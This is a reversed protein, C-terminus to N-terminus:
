TPQQEHGDLPRLSTKDLQWRDATSSRMTGLLVAALIASGALSVIRDVATAAIAESATLGVATGIVGSLLERLGLGAPFIGIAAAIIVSATLAVAQVPRITQGIVQFAVFIRVSSLVVTAAEVLLLWRLHRGASARDARGLLLWVAALAAVGMTPLAVVAALAAPEALLLVGAALCSAAVWTVGAAANAALARRYTTGAQRLAQTRVMIGGPLPLLNAAGAILTLRGSELWGVRHRSIAAMVRYEAANAAVTLPTTVLLLVLVAWANWHVDDPLSVFSVVSIVVFLGLAGALLWRRTRPSGSREAFKREFRALRAKWGDAAPDTANGSEYDGM